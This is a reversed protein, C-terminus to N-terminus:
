SEKALIKNITGSSNREVAFEWSSNHQVEPKIVKTLIAQQTEQIKVLADLLPKLELTEQTKISDSFKNIATALSETAKINKDIPKKVPKTLGSKVKKKLVLKNLETESVNIM